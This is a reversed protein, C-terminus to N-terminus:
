PLHDFGAQPHAQRAVGDVVLGRPTVAKGYEVSCTFFRHCARWGRVVSARDPDVQQKTAGNRRGTERLHWPVTMLRLHSACLITPM